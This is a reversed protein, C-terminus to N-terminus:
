KSSGLTGLIHWMLTSTRSVGGGFKLIDHMPARVAMSEKSKFNELFIDKHKNWYMKDHPHIAPLGDLEDIMWKLALDSLQLPDDEENVAKNGAAM